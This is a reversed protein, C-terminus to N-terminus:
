FTGIDQYDGPPFASVPTLIVNVGGDSCGAPTKKVVINFNEGETATYDAGLEGHTALQFTCGTAKAVQVQQLGVGLLAALMAVALLAGFRGPALRGDNQM